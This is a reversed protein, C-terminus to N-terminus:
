VGRFFLSWAIFGIVALGIVWSVPHAWNLTLGFGYTKPVMFNSDERNFYFVARHEKRWQTIEDTTWKRKEMKM